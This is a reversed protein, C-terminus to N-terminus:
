RDNKNNSISIGKYLEQTDDPTMEVPLLRFLFLNIIKQITGKYLEKTDDPTMEVSLFCFLVMDVIM